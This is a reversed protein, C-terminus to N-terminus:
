VAELVAKVHGPVRVKRWVKQVKGSKDVLFTSREVGMYSRGYNQKEVWVGYANVLEKETDALLTFTLGYKDKFKTHRSSDDPSVGIVRVKAGNFAALNDRFDCAETTCGPTDDKPYFYLVYPKGALSASSVVKGNEDPLSFAPAQDGESLAKGSAAKAKVPKDSSAPKAKSPKASASASTKAPKASKPAKAKPAVAKSKASTKSKTKKAAM